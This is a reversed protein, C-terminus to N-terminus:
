HLELTSPHTGKAIFKNKLLDNLAAVKLDNIEVTSEHIKNNTKSTKLLTIKLGPTDKLTLIKGESLIFIESESAQIYKGKGKYRNKIFRIIM